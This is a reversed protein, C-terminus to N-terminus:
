QLSKLYRLSQPLEKAAPEVWPFEKLRMADTLGLNDKHYIRCGAKRAQQHLDVLWDFPPVWEPTQNSKSAGGIVIWDFLELRTFTLPELMPEVSLWKTGCKLKEFADEASKVRAQCDVSTGVWANKPFQFNPLRKAFKTLLLFNWQPNAAVEALVVNIWQEPVWGGFLDAMSCTFVNKYSPDAEAAKPANTNKPCALRGPYFSPEFGQKYFRNAIDRAYCYSCEHLCGTVPNWTWKAWDISANDQKNFKTSESFSIDAPTAGAEFEALTIYDKVVSLEASQKKRARITKAVASVAKEGKIVSQKEEETGDKTVTVADHVSSKGINFLKAAQAVAKNENANAAQESNLVVAVKGGTYQNGHDGGAEQQRRKAEEVFYDMAAVACMGRQSADLHRRLLNQAIVFTHDSGPGEWPKMFQIPDIGNELCARYRHRGDLILVEGDEIVYWIPNYVGNGAVDEKLKQFDEDSMEPFVLSLPHPKVAFNDVAAQLREDVEFNFNFQTNTM